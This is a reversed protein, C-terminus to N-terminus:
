EEWLGLREAMLSRGLGRPNVRKVADMWAEWEPYMTRFAERPLRADKTLYVRGGHEIVIKDLDEMRRLTEAGRNPIDLALTFGRKCFPLLVNDDGCRKLVALFSGLGHQALVKLCAEVGAEGGPDPIVFQYQFFGKPGYMRNWNGLIDLPYFFGEYGADHEEGSRPIHYYAANFLRLGLPHLLGAPASFPVSFLTHRGGRKVESKGEVESPAPVRRVESKEGGAHNGLLLVGRGLGRGRAMTDVWAVSYEYGADHERFGAFLAALSRAKIGRTRVRAGMIPSAIPKLRLSVRTILGTLGYGGVTARFLDPHDAPNETPSCRFTGAPTAVELATVFHEISGCVHHNKGHVNSAVAGALTVWQTGPTVPLFWGRPVFTELITRLSVGGEAELIGTGPDFALFRDLHRTDLFRHGPAPLSADGYSRGLGRPLSPSAYDSLAEPITFPTDGDATVVPTRGWGSLPIASQSAPASKM